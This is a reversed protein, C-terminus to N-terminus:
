NGYLAFISVDDFKTFISLCKSWTAEVFFLAETFQSTPNRIESPNVAEINPVKVFRMHLLRFTSPPRHPNLMHQEYYYVFRKQSPITVGKGNKTREIGFKELAETASKCQGSHLLYTAILLGTRGKGAKCHIGIVTDPASAFWDDVSKCFQTRRYLNEVVNM